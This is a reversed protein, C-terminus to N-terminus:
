NVLDGGGTTTTTNGTVSSVFGNSNLIVSAGGGVDLANVVMAGGLSYSDSGSIVTTSGIAYVVGTGNYNYAGSSDFSISAANNRDYLVSVGQPQQATATTPASLYWNVAASGYLTIGAGTAGSACAAPAAPTGCVFYLTVGSGSLNINASSSSTLVLGSGSGGAFVYLGPNFTYTGSELTLTGYVGPSLTTTATDTPSCNSSCSLGSLSPMAMSALPDATTTNYTTTSPLAVPNACGSPWASAALFAGTGPSNITFAPQGSGSCTISGNIDVNAKASMSSSKSSTYDLTTGTGLLCIACPISWTKNGSGGTTGTVQAVANATVASHAAAGVAGAFYNTSTDGVPAGVYTVPVTPCNSVSFNGTVTSSCAGSINVYYTPSSSSSSTFTTTTWVELYPETGTSNVSPVHCISTNCGDLTGLQSAATYATGLTAGPQSLAYAAALSAADSVDHDSRSQAYDMGAGVSLATFGALVMLMIAVLPFV